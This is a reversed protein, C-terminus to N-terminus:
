GSEIDALDPRCSGIPSNKPVGDPAKADLFVARFASANIGVSQWNTIGNGHTGGNRITYKPEVSLTVHEVSHNRFTIHVIVHGKSWFCYVNSASLLKILNSDGLALSKSFTGHVAGKPPKAFAIGATALAAIALIVLAIRRVPGEKTM